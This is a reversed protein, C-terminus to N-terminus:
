ECESFVKLAHVDTKNTSNVELTRSKSKEIKKMKASSTRKVVFLERCDM